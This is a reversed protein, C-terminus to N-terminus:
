VPPPWRVPFSRWGVIRAMGVLIQPTPPLPRDAQIKSVMAPLSALIDGEVDVVDWTIFEAELAPLSTALSGEVDFGWLSAELLPLTADLDDVVEDGSFGTIDSELLPLSTTLIPPDDSFTPNNVPTGDIGGTTAEFAGWDLQYWGVSDALFDEPSSTGNTIDIAEQATFTRSFVAVNALTAPIFGTHVRVGPSGGDGNDIAGINIFGDTQTTTDGTVRIGVGEQAGDVHIRVDTDADANVLEAWFLIRHLSGDGLSSTGTVVAESGSAFGWRGRARSTDFLEVTFGIRVPFGVIRTANSFIYKADENTNLTIEAYVGFPPDLHFVNSSSSAVEILQDTGNLTVSM